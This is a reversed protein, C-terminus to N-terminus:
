KNGSGFSNNNCRRRLECATSFLAFPDVSCLQDVRSTQLDISIFSIYVATEVFTTGCAYFRVRRYRNTNHTSRTQRQNTSTRPHKGVLFSFAYICKNTSNGEIGSFFGLAEIL